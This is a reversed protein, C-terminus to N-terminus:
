VGGFWCKDLAKSHWKFEGITHAKRYDIFASGKTIITIADQTSIGIRDGPWTRIVKRPKEVGLNDEQYKGKLIYESTFIFGKRPLLDTTFDGNELSINLLSFFDAIFANFLYKDWESESASYVCLLNLEDQTWVIPVYINVYEYKEDAVVSTEGCDNLNNKCAFDRLELAVTRNFVEAAKRYNDGTSLPTGISQRNKDSESNFMFGGAILILALFSMVIKYSTKM